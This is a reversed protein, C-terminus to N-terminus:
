LRLFGAPRSTRDAPQIVSATDAGVVFATPDVVTAGNVSGDALMMTLWKTLDNVSASVGGAPSQADPDRTYRPQYGNDTKVHGVAGTPDTASSTPSDPVPRNWAWRRYLM